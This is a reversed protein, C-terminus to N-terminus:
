VMKINGSRTDRNRNPNYVDSHSRELRQEYGLRESYARAVTMGNFEVSEYEKPCLCNDIHAVLEDLDITDHSPITFCYSMKGPNKIYIMFYDQYIEIDDVEYDSHSEIYEKLNM